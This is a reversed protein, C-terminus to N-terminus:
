PKKLRYFTHGQAPPVTLYLHVTNTQYPPAITTWPPPAGSLTSTQELVWNPAPLLWSVRVLGNTLVVSLTPAGPTQIAAVISWFGGSLTYQGGSLQGADPQGLTGQVAYVGGTSSGGGGDMSYWDLTYNQASAALPPLLLLLAGLGARRRRSSLPRDSNPFHAASQRSAPIPISNLHKM